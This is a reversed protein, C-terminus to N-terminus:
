IRSDFKDKGPYEKDIVIEDIKRLHGKILLFILIAFLRYIFIKSKGTRQFVKEIERKDKARMLVCSFINNSFGIVSDKNTQEIKNSQDIEIKM